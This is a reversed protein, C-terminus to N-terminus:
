KDRQFVFYYGSASEPYLEGLRDNMRTLCQFPPLLCVWAGSFMSSGSFKELKMYKKEFLSIIKEKSFFQVHESMSLTMEGLVADQESKLNAYDFYLFKKFFIYNFAVSFWEIMPFVKKGFVTKKMRKGREFSGNGNPVTIILKGKENVLNCLNDVFEEQYSNDIHELVESCIVVDYKKEHRSIDQCIFYDEPLGFLTANKKAKDISQKSLDIGRITTSYGKERVLLNLPITLYAGTGCGIDLCEQNDLLCKEIWLLRRRHGWWNEYKIIKYM